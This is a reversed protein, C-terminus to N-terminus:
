LVLEICMLTSTEKNPGEFIRHDRIFVPATIPNIKVTLM